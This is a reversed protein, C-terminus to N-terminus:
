GRVQKVYLNKQRLQKVLIATLIVSVGAVLALVALVGKSGAMEFLMGFIFPTLAQAVLSPRAIKGMVLAFEQPKLIALPLTGRVISRLGNGASYVIVAWAAYAPLFLLLTVGLFVLVVSILLSWIPHSIRVMIDVVRAAVQTPGILASIAIAASLTFGDEQLLDILQVTIVTMAVASLMFICSMLTYVTRDITIPPTKKQDKPPPSKAVQPLSRRYIPFITLALFVAWILCTHRWGLHSVGLALLPWVLTTCFGSILTITTIAKKAGTGYTDGLTAFLADYLGMSMAVGLICWSLIFVVLSSSLAMVALGLATVVGSLALVNRGGQRAIYKGIYPLLVGSIFIGLSLSGYIWQRSWGTEQMIPRVLVALLFFSGGWVFIQAFGMWFIAALSPQAGDQSISFLSKLRYIM